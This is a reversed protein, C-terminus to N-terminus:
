SKYKVGCGYAKTQANPVPKSSLIADLADRVYPKLDKAKLTAIDASPKNDIAGQYVLKGKADIVYMHPTTQAGYQRGIEGSEDLVIHTANSGHEKKEALAKEPSVHGQEGEASSIVSIWVVGKKTYDAQLAQMNKGGYHKKVFPCGHNLWELVVVKGQKTYDSLKVPKGDATKTATFDPAQAGTDVAQASFALLFAALTFLTTKM